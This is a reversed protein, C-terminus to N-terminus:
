ANQTECHTWWDVFRSWKATAETSLPEWPSLTPLEDKRHTWHAVVRGDQLLSGPMRQPNFRPDRKAEYLDGTTSRRCYYVNDFEPLVHIRDGAPELATETPELRGAVTRAESKSIGSWYVFDDVTAPGFAKAFSDALDQLGAGADVPQPIAPALRYTTRPPRWANDPASEVVPLIMRLAFGLHREEADTFHKSAEAGLEARTRPRGDSMLDLGFAHLAEHDVATWIGRCFGAVLRRLTPQLATRWLWYQRLTVLHVTGRMVNSKVLEYAQMRATLEAPDSSEGCRAWIAVPIARAVQANIGAIQEVLGALDGQFPEELSQGRWMM